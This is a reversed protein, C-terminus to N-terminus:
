RQSLPEKVRWRSRPCQGPAAEQSSSSLRSLRAPTCSAGREKEPGTGMADPECDVPVGRELDNCPTVPNGDPFFSLDDSIARQLVGEAVARSLCIDRDGFAADKITFEAGNREQVPM